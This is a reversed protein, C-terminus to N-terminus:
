LIFEQLFPALSLLLSPFLVATYYNYLHVRLKIIFFAHMAASNFKATHSGDRIENYVYSQIMDHPILNTAVYLNQLSVSLPFDIRLQHM